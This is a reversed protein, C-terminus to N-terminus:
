NNMFEGPTKGTFRKFAKYFASRSHFGAEMGIGAITLVKLKEPVMQGKVYEIRHRNIFTTFNDGTRENIVQSLYHPHIDIFKAFSQLCLEAALHPRKDQIVQNIRSM